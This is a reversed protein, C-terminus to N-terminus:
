LPLEFWFTSGKGEESIVGYKAEHMELINKVISLGLGSGVIARKHNKDIKYYRQWVSDLKEKAIGMGNDTVEIRVAAEGTKQVVRILKDEGCYNVANAILNYVVQYMKFEDAEVLVHSDYDFLIQYGYPELLKSHRDIVAVISETLDYEKTELGAVGAQIKSIDLLDNVLITLRNAEDIIVQVNEPTNEGPLDRMVEAYATIMTLPTRLDHSVNALLEKQLMDTKSLEKAAYNLTKSLEAVERYDKGTFEVEFDGEALKKATRNIGIISKSVRRSIVFAIVLSLFVMIISIYVLQVRLTHVTADVPTIVSDVMIAVKEGSATEILRIKLISESNKDPMSSLKESRGNNRSGNSKKEDSTQSGSPKKEEEGSLVSDDPKGENSPKRDPKESKPAETSSGNFGSFDEEEREPPKVDGYKDKDRTIRIEIDGGNEEAQRYLEVLKETTQRHISCDMAREASYLQNGASDTVLICMEYRGAITGLASGIDEEDMAAVAHELANAIEKKKIRKYFSDLYVTQFFWLLLLLIACFSLLYLFVKWKISIKEHKM